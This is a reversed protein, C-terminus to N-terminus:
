LASHERESTELTADEAASTEPPLDLEALPVRLASGKRLIVAREIFNELERINGPWDWKTLAKLGTPMTAPTSKASSIM